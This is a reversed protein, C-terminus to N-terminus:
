EFQDGGHMKEENAISLDQQKASAAGPVLIAIVADDGPMQVTIFLDFSSRDSLCPLFGPDLDRRLIHLNDPDHM